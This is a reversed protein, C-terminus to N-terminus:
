HVERRNDRQRTSNSGNSYRRALIRLGSRYTWEHVRYTANPRMRMASSKGSEGMESKPVLMFLTDGKAALRTGQPTPGLTVAVSRNGRRDELLYVNAFGGEGARLRHDDVVCLEGYNITRKKPTTCTPLFGLEKARNSMLVAGLQQAALQMAPEARLINDQLLEGDIVAAQRQSTCCATMLVLCVISVLSTLALRCSRPIRISMRLGRCRAM